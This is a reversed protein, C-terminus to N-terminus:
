IHRNLNDLVTTYIERLRDYEEAGFGEPNFGKRLANAPHLNNRTSQIEHIVTETPHTNEGHHFRVANLLDFDRAAQILHNLTVDDPVELEDSEGELLIFTLLAAELAAGLAVAAMFYSGSEALKESEDQYFSMLQLAADGHKTGTLSGAHRGM